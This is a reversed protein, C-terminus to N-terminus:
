IVLLEAHLAGAAKLAQFIAALDRPKVGLQNLAAAVGGVTAAGSLVQLKGDKEEVKVESQPTVVTKAGKGALAGPQSVVPTESVDVSIGGYAVAAAGLTVGAGAVVTGTREDIIVRAAVDPTADLAELTAILDVVKNKWAAGVVVTVAAPDRVRASGEGLATNVAAAIRSSTTFDPERLILVVEDKPPIGPADKEVRAGTPIRAATTHNKKTSSGSGGEAAFGGVVVSGQALAYTALDPGKLPTVLLTGGALSKATGMSSVTIDLPMGARAFPPLEATVMVTAVNKAKFDNPEINLGLRKAMVAMERRTIVSSADDGTGALGVVLGIGVLHNPRFGSIEILDKLRTADAPAAFGLGGLVVLAISVTKMIKRM